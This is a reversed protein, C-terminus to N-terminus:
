YDEEKPDRTMLEKVAVAPDKGEYILEYVKQTIPMEVGYKKALEYASSSTGMGEVVMETQSLVEKIDKGKGLQEGFWRNRSYRSICTTALDGLGSLGRFTSSEAGMKVGLRTIEALGRTLLAAKSNTGFGMGDSVGAAIAIINKLAGGLEVGLVDALTYVRFNDTMFLDSVSDKCDGDSAVVVTTPIGRAVEYSISPGSLVSIRDAPFYDELMETARKLTGTEIGKTASVINGFGADSFKEAVSRLYECPVVFVAYDAGKAEDVDSTIKLDAPLPVGELFKSNERKKDLYEAYEPSYSWLVTDVGKEVLLIALATGWGGDGIICVKSM